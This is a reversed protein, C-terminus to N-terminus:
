FSCGLKCFVACDMLDAGDLLRLFKESVIFSFVSDTVPGWSYCPEPMFGSCRWDFVCLIGVVIWFLAACIVKSLLDRSYIKIAIRFGHNSSFTIWFTIEHGLTYNRPNGIFASVLASVNWLWLFPSAENPFMDYNKKGGFLSFFDFTYTM